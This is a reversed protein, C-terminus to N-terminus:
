IKTLKFFTATELIELDNPDNLDYIAENFKNRIYLFKEEEEDIFGTVEYKIGKIEVAAATAIAIFLADTKTKKKPIIEKIAPLRKYVDNIIKPVVAGLAIKILTYRIM